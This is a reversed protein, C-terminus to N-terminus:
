HASEEGGLADIIDALLQKLEGTMIAFDSDFQEEATEAPEKLIDLPAIRKLQMNEHLMFSVKDRWTMALKTAEKGTQVHGRIEVADIRPDNGRRHRTPASWGPPHHRM